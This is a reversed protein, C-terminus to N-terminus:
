YTKLREKTKVPLYSAAIAVACGDKIGQAYAPPRHSLPLAELCKNAVERTQEGETLYVLSAVFNVGSLWLVTGTHVTKM